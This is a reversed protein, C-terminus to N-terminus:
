LHSLGWESFGVAEMPVMKIYLEMIETKSAEIEKYTGM